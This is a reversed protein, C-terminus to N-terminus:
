FGTPHTHIEYWADSGSPARVRLARPLMRAQALIFSLAHVACAECYVSASNTLSIKRAAMFARFAPNDYRTIGSSSVHVWKLQTADAIAGPDPQGFAVDVDAFGPDREGKALVSTVARQPFVLEHGKTQDRLWELVDAPLDLDVFIRLSKM